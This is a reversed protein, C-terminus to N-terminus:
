IIGYVKITGSTITGANFAFQFGDIAAITDWCGTVYVTAPLFAAKVYVLTGYFLTKKSSTPSFCTIEGSIGGGGIPNYTTNTAPDYSLSIAATNAVGVQVGGAVAYFTNANLYGSTKYAGGSHIQLYPAAGNTSPTIENFQLKYMSYGSTMSTIDQLVSSASATLTNLLAYSPQAWTADARLFNVTGGGSAPALGKLSSTFANPITTLQTATLDAPTGGAVSGKVTNAGVTALYANTVSNNPFSVASSASILPAFVGTSSTINKAAGIGGSTVISGTASNFSDTTNTNTNIGSWTNTGDLFPVTHGSTGTGPVVITPNSVVDILRAPSNATSPVPLNIIQNSNMDLVVSMTNPSTGDRSFTNEMATEILDNNANITAQATTAEILSGVNNLTLKSM